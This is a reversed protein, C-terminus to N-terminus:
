AAVLLATKSGDDRRGGWIGKKHPTLAEVLGAHGRKAAWMLASYGCGNQKRCEDLHARAATTDGAFTACILVRWGSAKREHLYLLWVTEAHGNWAAYM